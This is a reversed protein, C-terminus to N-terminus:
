KRTLSQLRGIIRKPIIKKVFSVIIYKVCTALMKNECSYILANKYHSHHSIMSRLIVNQKFSFVASYFFLHKYSELWVKSFNYDNLKPIQIFDYLPEEVMFFKVGVEELSLCFQYDQHRKLNHFPVALALRRELLIGSTQILGQENFLYNSVNGNSSIGKLPTIFERESTIVNSQSYIVVLGYKKKVKDHLDVQKSIKYPYWRDDHDLFAVLEGNANSVGINRSIGGGVNKINRFIKIKKINKYKTICSDATVPSCDDVIILEINKYDQELVSKITQDLDVYEKSYFPIIVSVKKM